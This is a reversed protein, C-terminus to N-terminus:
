CNIGARTPLYGPTSCLSIKQCPLDGGGSCHGSFRAREGNAIMKRASNVVTMLKRGLETADVMAAKGPSIVGALKVIANILEDGTPDKGSPIQSIDIFKHSM